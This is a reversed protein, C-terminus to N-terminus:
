IGADTDVGTDTATDASNWHLLPIQVLLVRLILVLTLTPILIMDPGQMLAMALADSGTKTGTSYNTDILIPILVLTTGTDTGNGTVTDINTDTIDANAEDGTDPDNNLVGIM